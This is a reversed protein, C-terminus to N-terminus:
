CEVLGGCTLRLAPIVPLSVFALTMFPDIGPSVGLERAMRRLAEMGAEVEAASLRSMIGAVPLALHALVREGAVVALGGGSKRVTEAALAMEEPSAGVVILNHSDHAVTTAVAGRRLGYGTIWARGIHGTNKHREVVALANRAEKPAASLKRTTIEGPVLGIVPGEPEASMDFDAPTLPALHFTNEASQCLEAPIEPERFPLAGNERDYVKTGRKWVEMVEMEALDSTILFSAERGPAIAGLHGLGFYEAPRATALAVAKVPDAGLAVAKRLNADLHGAMLDGPHKDDTVLMIRGPNEAMLGALAELNRAATGERIMIWMGADLKERAEALSTCEHDSSVGAAAYARLTEGTVGPAHGDIRKGAAKADGLKQLMDPDGKVVSGVDMVEGLGLVRPHDLYPRLDAATLTAGNEEGPAAPVCSPLMFYVDVPLGETAALMYDLGKTGLVNAIEHPDAVVAGTGHPLVTRAFEAPSVMASELHIHGDILSPLVINGQLDVEQAGPLNEGLAAIRGNEIAIEGQRLEDGALYRGNKLVWEYNGNM